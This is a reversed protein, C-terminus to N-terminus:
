DLGLVLSAIRDLEFLDDEFAAEDVTESTYSVRDWGALEAGPIRHVQEWGLETWVEVRAWSQFRYANYRVTYRLRTSGDALVIERWWSSDQNYIRESILTGRM